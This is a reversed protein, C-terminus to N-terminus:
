VPRPSMRSTPNYSSRSATARNSSGASGNILPAHEGSREYEGSKDFEGSQLIERSNRWKRSRRLRKERVKRLEEESPPPALDGDNFAWGKLSTAGARFPARALFHLLTAVRHWLMTLFQIAIIFGFVILFALGLPNTDIVDLETKQTLTYILIIWVLNSVMLCLVVSNRLDSLKDALESYQGFAKSEPLLRLERLKTWFDNETGDGDDKLRGTPVKSLDQRAERIKREITSPYQLKLIAHTLKEVHGRKWVELEDHLLKNLDSPSMVKLDELAKPNDYSNTKFNLWYEHLGLDTLWKDVNDPVNNDLEVMPLQEIERLLEKRHGRTDIGIDILDQDTMGCIFSTDDYGHEEFNATYNKMKGKLWEGVPTHSKFTPLKAQFHVSRKDDDGPFRFAAPAPSSPRSTKKLASKIPKSPPPFHPSTPSQPGFSSSRGESAHSSVESESKTSEGSTEGQAEETERSPSPSDSETSSESTSSIENVPRVPEAAPEQVPDKCGRCMWKLKDAMVKTLSEENDTKAKNERTGWSRDTLNCVSYIILFLYGSPLCLLYWVGHVVCSAETPHCLATLIFIAVLGYFYWASVSLEYFVSKEHKPSSTSNSHKTPIPTKDTAFPDEFIFNAINKTFLFR